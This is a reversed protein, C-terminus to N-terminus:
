TLAVLPIGGPYLVRGASAASTGSPRPDAGVRALGAAPLVAVRPCGAEEVDYGPLSEYVCRCFDCAVVYGRKTAHSKHLHTYLHMLIGHGWVEAAREGSVFYEEVRAICQRERM